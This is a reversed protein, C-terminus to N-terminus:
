RGVSLLREARDKRLRYLRTSKFDDGLYTKRAPHKDSRDLFFLLEVGPDDDLARRVNDMFEIVPGDASNDAAGYVLITWPRLAGKGPMKEQAQMPSAVAFLLLVGAVSHWTIRM